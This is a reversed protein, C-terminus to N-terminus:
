MLGNEIIHGNLLVDGGAELHDKLRTLGDVDMQALGVYILDNTDNRNM